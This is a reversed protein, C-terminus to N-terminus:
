GAPPGSQSARSVAGVITKSSTAPKGKRDLISGYYGVLLTLDLTCMLELRKYPKPRLGSFLPGHLLVALVVGELGRDLTALNSAMM